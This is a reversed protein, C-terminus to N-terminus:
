ERGYDGIWRVSLSESRVAQYFARDATWLDCKEDEALALYAADYASLNYRLATELVRLPEAERLEVGLTMLNSIAEVAKNSDVRRQKTATVIGNVLEYLLLKPAILQMNRKAYYDDRLARAQAICEEDDMQWKFVVSADVVALATEPLM